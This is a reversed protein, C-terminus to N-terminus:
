KWACLISYRSGVAKTDGSQVAIPSGKNPTLVWWPESYWHKSSAGGEGELSPCLRGHNNFLLINRSILFLQSIPPGGDKHCARHGSRSTLTCIVPLAIAPTAEELQIPLPVQALSHPPPLLGEAIKRKEERKKEKVM